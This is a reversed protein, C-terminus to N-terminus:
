NRSPWVISASPGTGTSTPFSRSSAWSRPVTRGQLARQTREDEESQLLPALWASADVEPWHEVLRNRRLAKARLHLMENHNTTSTM